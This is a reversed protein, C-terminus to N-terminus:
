SKPLYTLNPAIKHFKSIKIIVAEHFTSDLFGVACTHCTDNHNDAACLM